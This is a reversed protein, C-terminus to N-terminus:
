EITDSKHAHIDVASNYLLVEDWVASKIPKIFLRNSQKFWPNPVWLGSASHLVLILRISRNCNINLIFM